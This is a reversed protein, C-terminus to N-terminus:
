QTAAKAAKFADFDDFEITVDKGGPTESLEKWHKECLGWPGEGQADEGTIITTPRKRCDAINCRRIHWDCFLPIMMIGHCEEDRIIAM